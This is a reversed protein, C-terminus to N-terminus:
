EIPVYEVPIPVYSRRSEIVLKRVLQQFFKNERPNEVYPELRDLGDLLHLQLSDYNEKIIQLVQEESLSGAKLEQFKEIKASFHRIIIRVNELQQFLIRYTSNDVASQSEIHSFHYQTM